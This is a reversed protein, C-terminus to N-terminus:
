KTLPSHDDDQKQIKQIKKLENAFEPLHMTGAPIVKCLNLSAM